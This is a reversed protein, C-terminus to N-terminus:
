EPTFVEMSSLLIFDPDEGGFVYIKGGLSAAAAGYREQSMDPGVLWYGLATDYAEM